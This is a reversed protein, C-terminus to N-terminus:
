GIRPPRSVNGNDDVVVRIRDQRYDMTMMSNQNIKVVNIHPHNKKIVAVAEDGNMHLLHHFDPHSTESSVAEKSM